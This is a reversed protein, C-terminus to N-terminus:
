TGACWPPDEVRDAFELLEDAVRGEVRLRPAWRTARWTPCALGGTSGSAKGHGAAIDCSAGLREARESLPAIRPVIDQSGAAAANQPRPGCMEQDHGVGVTREGNRDILSREQEPDRPAEGIPEDVGAYNRAHTQSAADDNRALLEVLHEVL